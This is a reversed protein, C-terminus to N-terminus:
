REGFALVQSAKCVAQLIQIGQESYADPMYLEIFIYLTVETM